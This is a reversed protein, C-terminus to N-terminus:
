VMGLLMVAMAAAMVVHALAVARVDRLVDTRVAVSGGAPERDRDAARLRDACRLVHWAFYGALVLALISSLGFGGDPGGGHGVHGAHAAGTGAVGGGHAGLLMFLMAGSGIVHHVADDRRRGAPSRLADAAFWAGCLTFVGAWVPAPVPDGVPSFMAAMGVGMAAHSAESAPDLRLRLVHFAGVALCAVALVGALTTMLVDVGGTTV